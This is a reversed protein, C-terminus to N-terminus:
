TTSSKRRPLPNRKHRPVDGCDRTQPYRKVVDLMEEHTFHANKILNHRWCCPTSNDLTYGLRNDKRDLGVAVDPRVGDGYVCPSFTLVRFDDLSLDFAQRKAKCTSIKASYLQEISNRLKPALDSSWLISSPVDTKEEWIWFLMSSPNTLYFNDVLKMMLTVNSV